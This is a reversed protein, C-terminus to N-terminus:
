GQSDEAAAEGTDDVHTEEVATPIEGAYVAVSYSNRMKGGEKAEATGTFLLATGVAPEWTELVNSDSEPAISHRERLLAATHRALPVSFKAGSPHQLNVIAPIRSKAGTPKAFSLITGFYQVGPASLQGVRLVGGRRAGGGKSATTVLQSEDLAFTPGLTTIPAPPASPTRAKKPAAPAGAPKSAALAAKPAQAPASPKAPAKPAAPATVTKAM